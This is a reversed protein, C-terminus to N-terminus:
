ALAISKELIEKQQDFTFNAGFSDNKPSYQSRPAGPWDTKFLPSAIDTVRLNYKELIGIAKTLEADDLNLINKGWLSRLEVWELGFETAIVSCAHDFDPSIEDSIVAVKFISNIRAAHLIAPLSCALASTTQLFRRRSIQSM